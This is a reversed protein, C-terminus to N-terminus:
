QPISVVIKFCHPTSYVQAPNSTSKLQSYATFCIVREGADADTPTWSFTQSTPNSGTSAALAAGAPFGGGSTIYVGVATGDVSSATLNIRLQTGSWAQVTATAAPTPAIFTPASQIKCINSTGSPACTCQSADACMSYTGTCAACFGKIKTLNFLIDLPVNATNSRVMIVTCWLGEAVGTTNWSLTGNGYNITMQKPQICNTKSACTEEISGLRYNLAGGGSPRTAQINTTYIPQSPNVMALVLPASATVPSSTLNALDVTTVLNWFTNNANHLDILRSKDTYQAKWPIGNNNPTKYKHIFEVTAVVSDTARDVSSVTQNFKQSTGDGFLFVARHQPLSSYTPLTSGVALTGQVGAWSGWYSARYGNELTFRVTNNGVHVWRITGYRYHSAQCCIIFALVAFLCLTVKM